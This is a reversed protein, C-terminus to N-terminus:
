RKDQTTKAGAQPIAEGRQPLSPKADQAAMVPLQWTGNQLYNRRWNGGFITMRDGHLAARYIGISGASRGSAICDKYAVGAHAFNSCVVATDEPYTPFGECARDLVTSCHFVLLAKDPMIVRVDYFFAYGRRSEAPELLIPFGSEGCYFGLERTYTGSKGSCGTLVQEANISIEGESAGLRIGTHTQVVEVRLRSKSHCPLAGCLLAFLLCTAANLRQM